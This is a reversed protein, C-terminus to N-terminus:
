PLAGRENCAPRKAPKAMPAPFQHLIKQLPSTIKTVSEAQRLVDRAHQLREDKSMAPCPQRSWHRTNCVLCRPADM